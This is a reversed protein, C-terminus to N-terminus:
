ICFGIQKPVPPTLQVFPVFPVLNWDAIRATADAPLFEKRWNSTAVADTM